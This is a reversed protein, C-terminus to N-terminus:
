NEGNQEPLGFLRLNWLRHHREQDDVREELEKIRKEYTVLQGKLVEVTSKTEGVDQIIAALQCNINDISITNINIKEMIKETNKAMAEMLNDQLDQLSLEMRGKKPEPTSSASEPLSNIESTYEEETTSAYSHPEKLSTNIGIDAKEVTQARLRKASTQETGAM